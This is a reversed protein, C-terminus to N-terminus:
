NIYPKNGTKVMASAAFGRCLGQAEFGVGNERSGALTTRKNSFSMASCHSISQTITSFMYGQAGRYSPM